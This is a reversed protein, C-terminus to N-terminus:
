RSELERLHAQAEGAWGSDGDIQLYARWADRAADRRGARQLADARNFRAEALSPDAALAREAMQLAATVDADRRERDARVLYAASLDSFTRADATPENAAAELTTIARDVDGVVLHALGLTRMAEQTGSTGADKEIQAAAIRVDPSVTAAEGAGRVRGRLPGYAFGGTLRPEITRDTGVAAVLAQLEPRAHRWPLTGGTAVVFWVAAAAALAGAVTPWLTRHRRYWAPPAPAPVNSAGAATQLRATETFLFYCDACEALHAAVRARDRAALRDDLYAAITELDPCVGADRM